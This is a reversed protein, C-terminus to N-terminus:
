GVPPFHPIPDPCSRRTGRHHRLVDDLADQPTLYYSALPVGSVWIAEVLDGEREHLCARTHRVDGPDYRADLILWETPTIRKVEFRPDSAASM